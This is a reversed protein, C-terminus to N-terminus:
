EPMKHAIKMVIGKTEQCLIIKKYRSAQRMAICGICFMVSYM